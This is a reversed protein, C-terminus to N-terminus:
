ALDVLVVAEPKGKVVRYKIGNMPYKGRKSKKGAFLSFDSDSLKRQAAYQDENIHEM